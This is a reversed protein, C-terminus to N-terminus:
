NTVLKRASELLYELVRDLYGTVSHNDTDRLFVISGYLDLLEGTVPNIRTQIETAMELLEQLLLSDEEAREAKQILEAVLLKVEEDM